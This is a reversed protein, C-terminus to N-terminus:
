NADKFMESYAYLAKALDKLEETSGEYKLAGYVYSMANFRATYAGDFTVEHWGQLHRAGISGVQVYYKNKASREPQVENGDLTVTHGSVDGDCTFYLRMSTNSDLLLSTGTVAIADPKDGSLKATHQTIVEDRASVDPLGNIGGDGPLSTDYKWRIAYACYTYVSRVQAKEDDTLKSQEGLAAKFYKYVSYDMVDDDLRGSSPTRLEMREGDPGLLWLTVSEDAKIAFVPYSVEYRGRDDKELGSVDVRREGKHGDMVVTTGQAVDDPVTFSINLGLEGGLRVSAALLEGFVEAEEFSASVAVNGTPMAFTYTTDDVKALDVDSGGDAKCRISELQYGEGPEVTLTVTVGGAVESPTFVTKDATVKGVGDTPEDISVTYVIEEFEATIYIDQAPMPFTYSDERNELIKTFLVEGSDDNAKVTISKLKYGEAAYSTVTIEDDKDASYKSAYIECGSPAPADKMITYLDAYQATLTTGGNITIIDGPQCLGDATGDSQELLVVDGGDAVVENPQGDPVIGEDPQEDSQGILVVGDDDAVTGDSQGLLVVGDAPAVEEESQGQLTAGGEVLWGIFRKGTPKNDCAPVEYSAGPAVFMVETAPQEPSGYMTNLTVSLESDGTQKKGCVCRGNEDFFHNTREELGCYKCKCVHWSGSDPGIGFGSGFFVYTIGSKGNVDVHDCETIKLDNLDHCDSSRDDAKSTKWEDKGRPLYDVRMLKGTTNKDKTIYITGSKGDDDGHGIAENLINSTPSSGNRHITITGGGIYVTGGEGGWGNEERGGGIGAGGNGSWIEVNGGLLYAKGHMNGAAGAGIGAGGFEGREPSGGHVEIDSAAGCDITITGDMDGEPVLGNGRGAGIGAALDGGKATVKTADGFINIEGSMDEEYGGGIGPAETGGTATITGGYINIGGGDAAKRLGGGEEGAGIGAGHYGGTANITTPMSAAVPSEYVFIGLTGEEDGGGIGAGHKASSATINGSYIYTHAGPQQDGGGIGAGDAGGKATIKGAFITISTTGDPDQGGEGGGIGAGHKGGTAEITTGHVTINGSAEDDNGGIGGAKDKGTTIIKGTGYINLTAAQKEKNYGCGIGQKCTLTAGESVVLNVTAGKKVYVYRDITTNSTVVYTGDTLGLGWTGCYLKVLDNTLVKYDAASVEHAVTELSKLGENWSYETYIVSDSDASARSPLGGLLGLVALVTVAVAIGKAKIRKM